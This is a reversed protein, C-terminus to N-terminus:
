LFSKLILFNLIAAFGVWLGYPVLLAGAWKSVKFFRAIVVVLVAFLLLCDIWALFPSQAVFFLWPWLFNLGLQVYFLAHTQHYFRSSPARYKAAWFLVLALAMLSYLLTWVIPFIFDPPTIKPPNWYRKNVPALFNTAWGTLWGGGLCLAFAQVYDKLKM